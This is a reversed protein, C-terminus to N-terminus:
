VNGRYRARRTLRWEGDSGSSSITFVVVYSDGETLSTTYPIVGQWDGASFPASGGVYSASGDAVETGDSDLLSWTATGSTIATGNVEATRLTVNNDNNIYLFDSDTM